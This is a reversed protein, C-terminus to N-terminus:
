LAPLRKVRRMYLPHFCHCGCLRLLVVNMPLHPLETIGATGDQFINLSTPFVSSHLQAALSASIFFLIFLSIFYFLFSCKCEKLQTLDLFFFFVFCLVCLWVCCPMCWHSWASFYVSDVTNTRLQSEHFFTWLFFFCHPRQSSATFYMLVSPRTNLQTNANAAHYKEEATSLLMMMFNFIHVCALSSCM